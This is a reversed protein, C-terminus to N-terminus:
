EYRLAITPDVRTARLAPLYSALLAVAALIVAAAGFTLPDRVPVEFLLSALFRTAAMAGALGIAIGALSLLLGQRLVLKLMDSRSAGLAARIGFEQTRQAVSYAMVGYTGIVALTLAVLAFIGVLEAAFRQRWGSEQVIQEMTRVKGVPLDRDIARISGIISNALNKTGAFGRVVLSANGWSSQLLPVYVSAGAPEEIRAEKVSGAIGVITLWRDPKGQDTYYRLRKGLPNENPWFQRATAEDVIAVGPTSEQDADQFARGRLLPIGMLNFYDGAIMRKDAVPKDKLSKPDARGEIDFSNYNSHGQLPLASILAAQSLGPLTRVQELVRSYFTHQQDPRGYGTKPLTVEMTLIDDPRFGPNSRELRLFSQMLLGAGTLLMLSLGVEAVVLLNRFRLRASGTTGSRGGERLSENLDFRSSKFAPVLGFLLGMLLSLSLTFALV